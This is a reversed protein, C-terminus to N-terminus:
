VFKQVLDGEGEKWDRIEVAKVQMLVYLRLHLATEDEFRIELEHHNPDNTLNIQEVVKGAVHEVFKQTNAM